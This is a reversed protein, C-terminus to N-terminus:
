SVDRHGGLREALRVADLSTSGPSGQACLWGATSADTVLVDLYGGQLAGLIAHRKSEGLAVAVVRKMGRLDELGVGVVRHDLPADVATGDARFYRALLDGVAGSRELCALDDSGLVGQSRLFADEGLHGVGVVAVDARRAVEIQEAVDPEATIAARAEATTALVPALVRLAPGGLARAFAPVLDVPNGPTETEAVAVAGTLSVVTCGLSSLGRLSPPVLGVTASIGVGLVSGAELVGSLYSGTLRAAVQGPEDIGSSDFAVAESLSFREVLGEELAFDRGFRETSVEVHVLGLEKARRLARLVRFRSVGLREAVEQQTLDNAYYM